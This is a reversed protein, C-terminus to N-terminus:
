KRQQAEIPGSLLTKLYRPSREVPANDRRVAPWRVFGKPGGQMRENSGARPGKGWYETASSITLHRKLSQRM